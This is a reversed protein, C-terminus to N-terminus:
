LTAVQCSPGTRGDAPMDSKEAQFDQFQSAFLRSTHGLFTRLVPIVSKVSVMGNHLPLYTLMNGDLVCIYILVTIFIHLILECSPLM